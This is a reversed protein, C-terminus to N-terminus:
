AAACRRLAQGVRWPAGGDARASPKFWVEDRELPPLEILHRPSHDPVRQLSM